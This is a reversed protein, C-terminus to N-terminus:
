FSQLLVHLKFVLWVHDNWGAECFLVLLMGM